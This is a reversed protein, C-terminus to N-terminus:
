MTATTNRATHTDNKIRAAIFYKLSSKELYSARFAETCSFTVPILTTLAKTLSSKSILLNSLAFLFNYSMHTLASDITTIFIGSIINVTYVHIIMILQIPACIITWFTSVVPSSILKSVYQIDIRIDNIITEIIKTIMKEGCGEINYGAVFEALTMELHADLQKKMKEASRKGFGELEAIAKLDMTYLSSITDIIEAEILADITRLGFEKIDLKSTWKNIRGSYRSRCFDNTCSLKCHNDNLTLKSNCVPCVTPLNWNHAKALTQIINM